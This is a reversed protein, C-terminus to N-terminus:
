KCAGKRKDRLNGIRDIHRHDGGPADRVRAAYDGGQNKACLAYLHSRCEQRALLRAGTEKM